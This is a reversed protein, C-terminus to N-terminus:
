TGTGLGGNDTAYGGDVHIFPSVKGPLLKVSFGAGTMFVTEDPDGSYELEFHVHYRKNVAAGFIAALGWYSETPSSQSGSYAEGNEDIGHHKTPIDCVLCHWRNLGLKM